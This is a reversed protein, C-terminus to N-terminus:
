TGVREASLPVFYTLEDHCRVDAYVQELRGLSAELLDGMRLLSVGDVVLFTMRLFILCHPNVRPNDQIQDSSGVDPPVVTTMRVVATKEIGAL